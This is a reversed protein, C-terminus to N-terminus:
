KGPWRPAVTAILVKARELIWPGSVGMGFAMLARWDAGVIHALAGSGLVGVFISMFAQNFAYLVPRDDGSIISGLAGVGALLWATGSPDIQLAVAVLAGILRAGWDLAQEGFSDHM